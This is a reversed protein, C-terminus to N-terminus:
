CSTWLTEFAAVLYGIHRCTDCWLARVTGSQAAAWKEVVCHRTSLDQGQSTEDHGHELKENERGDHFHHSDPCPLAESANHAYM